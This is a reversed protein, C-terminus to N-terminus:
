SRATIWDTVLPWIEAQAPKSVVIGPHDYDVQFGRERGADVFRKDDGTMHGIFRECGAAPDVKDGTGCIALVPRDVRALAPKLIRGRRGETVLTCADHMAATPENEPGLGFRRAPFYGLAKSIGRTFLSGPFNLPSKGVEFQTAFLVLGAVHEADLTTGAANGIMVGGFSHGMWFTPGGTEETVISQMRPLDHEIHELGPRAGADTPSDGIARREVIYGAYGSAALHGALGVGKDSLWFRRGSFMGPVYVVAGRAQGEPRIRTLCFRGGDEATIIESEIM